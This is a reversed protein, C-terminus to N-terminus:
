LWYIIDYDIYYKRTHSYDFQIFDNVRDVHKLKRLAPIQYEKRIIYDEYMILM